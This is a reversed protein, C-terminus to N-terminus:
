IDESWKDGGHSQTTELDDQPPLPFNLIICKVLLYKNRFDSFLTIPIALVLTYIKICIYVQLFLYM